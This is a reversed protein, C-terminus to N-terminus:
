ADLLERLLALLEDADIPKSAIRLLADRPLEKVASSTDGTLLVARPSRGLAARLATIVQTGTEGDALHYDTVVLDIPPGNAGQELAEAITAVAAVQYGESKLLLRTAARVAPDDEVLLM